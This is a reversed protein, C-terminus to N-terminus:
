VTARSGSILAALGAGCVLGGPLGIFLALAIGLALLMSGIVMRARRQRWRWALVALLVSAGGGALAIAHGITALLPDDGM